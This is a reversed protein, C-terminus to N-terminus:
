RGQESSPSVSRLSVVRWEAADSSRTLQVLVAFETDAVNRVEVSASREGNLSSKATMYTQPDTGLSRPVLSTFEDLEMATPPHEFRSAAENSSGGALAAVTAIAEERAASLQVLRPMWFVVALGAAVLALAMATVSYRNYFFM